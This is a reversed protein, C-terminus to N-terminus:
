TLHSRGLEELKIMSSRPRSTLADASEALAVQCILPTIQRRSPLEPLTVLTPGNWEGDTPQRLSFRKHPLDGDQLVTQVM